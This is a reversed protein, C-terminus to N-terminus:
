SRHYRIDAESVLRRELARKSRECQAIYWIIKYEAEEASHTRYIEGARCQPQLVLDLTDLSRKNSPSHCCSAESKEYIKEWRQETLSIFIQVLEKVASGNVQFTLCYQGEAKALRPKHRHEKHDHQQQLHERHGKGIGTSSDSSCETRRKEDSGKSSKNHRSCDIEYTTRRYHGFLVKHKHAHRTKHGSDHLRRHSRDEKNRIHGSSIFKQNRKNKGRRNGIRHGPSNLRIRDICLTDGLLTLQKGM